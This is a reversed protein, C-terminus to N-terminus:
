KGCVELLLKSLTAVHIRQRPLLETEVLDRVEGDLSPLAAEYGAVGNEEAELLQQISLEDRLLVFSSWTAGPEAAPAGGLARVCAQLAAANRQHGAAMSRVSESSDSGLRGDLSRLAHQYAVVAALEVRLLENLRGTSRQPQESM